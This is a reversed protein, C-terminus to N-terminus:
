LYKGLDIDDKLKVKKDEIRFQNVNEIVYDDYDVVVLDYIVKMDEEDDGFYGFDIIGATYAKIDKTRKSFFLTMKDDASNLAKM